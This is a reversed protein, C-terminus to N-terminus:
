SVYCYVFIYTVVVQAQVRPSDKFFTHLCRPGETFIRTQSGVVTSHLKLDITTLRLVRIPQIEVSRKTMVGNVHTVFDKAEEIDKSNVQSVRLEHTRTNCM